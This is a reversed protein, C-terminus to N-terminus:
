DPVDWSKELFRAIQGANKSCDLSLVHRNPFGRREEWRRMSKALSILQYQDINLLDCVSSLKLKLQRSCESLEGLRYASFKDLSATELANNPDCGLVKKCHHVYDWEAGLADYAMFVVKDIDYM